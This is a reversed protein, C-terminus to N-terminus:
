RGSGAGAIEIALARPIKAGYNISRTRGTLTANRSRGTAPRALQGLARFATAGDVATCNPLNGRSNIRASAQEVSPM